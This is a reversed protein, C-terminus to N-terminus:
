GGAIAPFVAVREGGQLPRSPKAPRSDVFILRPEDMPVGLDRLLDGVTQGPRVDARVSPEGAVYRRLSAYLRLDVQPMTM